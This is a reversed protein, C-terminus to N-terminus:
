DEYLSIYEDASLMDDDDDDDDDFDDFDFESSPTPPEPQDDYGMGSTMEFQKKKTQSKKRKSPKKSKSKQARRKPAYWVECTAYAEMLVGMQEMMLALPCRQMDSDSCGHKNACDMVLKNLVDATKTMGEYCNEKKMKPESGTKNDRKIGQSTTRRRNRVAVIHM